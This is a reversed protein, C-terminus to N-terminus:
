ENKGGMIEALRAANEDARSISEGRKTRAPLPGDEWREGNLWTAPYPMYRKPPLNPDEAYQRAGAVAKEAQEVSLRKFAKRARGKDVKHPYAAWFNDFLQPEVSEILELENTITRYTTEQVVRTDNKASGLAIKAGGRPARRIVYMSSTYQNNEVRREKEVAGYSVLEDIAADVTRISCGSQNAITARSPWAQLTKSDAYRALVAYVRVAKHSLPSVVIWEPIISFKVDTDVYDNM